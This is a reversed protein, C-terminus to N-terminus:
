AASTASVCGVGGFVVGAPCAQAQARVRGRGSPHTGTIPAVFGDGHLADGWPQVLTGGGDGNFDGSAVSM